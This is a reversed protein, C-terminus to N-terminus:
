LRGAKRRGAGSGRGPPPYPYLAYRVAGPRVSRGPTQSGSLAKKPRRHGAAQLHGVAPPGYPETSRRPHAWGPGEPSICRYAAPRLPHSCRKGQRSSSIPVACIWSRGSTGGSCGGTPKAGRKQSYRRWASSWWPNHSRGPTQSGSLIQAGAHGGRPALVAVTGVGSHASDPFLWDADTFISYPM